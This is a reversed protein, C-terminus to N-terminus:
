FRFRQAQNVSLLVQAHAMRLQDDNLNQPVTGAAVGLSVSFILVTSTRLPIGVWGMFGLTILLPLVNPIMSLLGIRISVHADPTRSVLTATCNM